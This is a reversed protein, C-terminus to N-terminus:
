FGEFDEHNENLITTAPSYHLTAPSNNHFLSARESFSSFKAPSNQMTAPSNESRRHRIFVRFGEHDNRLCAHSKLHITSLASDPARLSFHWDRRRM